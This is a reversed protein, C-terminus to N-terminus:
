APPQTAPHMPLIREEPDFLVGEALEVQMRSVFTVMRLGAGEWYNVPITSIEAWTLGDILDHEAIYREVAVHLASNLDVTDLLFGTMVFPSQGLVVLAIPQLTPMLPHTYLRADGNDNVVHLPRM